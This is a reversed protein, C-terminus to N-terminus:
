KYKGLVYGGLCCALSYALFLPTGAAGKRVITSLASIAMISVFLLVISLVEKKEKLPKIQM